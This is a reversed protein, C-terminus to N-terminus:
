FWFFNACFDFAGRTVSRSKGLYPLWVLGTAFYVWRGAFPAKAFSSNFRSRDHATIMTNAHLGAAGKLISSHFEDRGFAMTHTQNAALLGQMPDSLPIPDFLGTEDSRGCGATSPLVAGAFAARSPKAVAHGTPVLTLMFLGSVVFAVVAVVIAPLETSIAISPSSPGSAATNPHLSLGAMAAASQSLTLV